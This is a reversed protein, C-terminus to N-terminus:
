AGVKGLTSQEYAKWGGQLVRVNGHGLDSLIRAVRDGSPCEASDCMVVVGDAAELVRSLGLERYGRVFESAPVHVAGAPHGARFPVDNRVDVILLVRGASLEEQLQEVSVRPAREPWAGPGSSDLLPVPRRAFANTLLGLSSSVALVVVCRLLDKRWGSV